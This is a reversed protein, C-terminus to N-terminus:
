PVAENENEIVEAAYYRYHSVTNSGMQRRMMTFNAEGIILYRKGDFIIIDGPNGGPDQGVANLKIDTYAKIYRAARRGNVLAEIANRDGASPEQITMPVNRPIGDQEPYYKGEHWMGPSRSIVVFPTRNSTAM